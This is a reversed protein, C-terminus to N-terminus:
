IGHPHRAHNAPLQAARPPARLAAWREELRALEEAHLRKAQSPDRTKLSYREEKKGVVRILDTPVRKRLWYVGTKPHQFPRSMALVM